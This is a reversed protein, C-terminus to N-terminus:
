WVVTKVKIKREEIKALKLAKLILFILRAVIGSIYSLIGGLIKVLLFFGFAFGISIEKQYPGIFEAIKKNLEQSIARSIEGKAEKGLKESVIDEQRFSQDRSQTSINKLDEEEVPSVGIVISELPTIFFSVIEPSIRLTQQNINLLPNFYYVLGIVIAIGTVIVPRGRKWIKGVALQDVRSRKERQILWYSLSLFCLLILMGSLYFFNFPFFAFFAIAGFFNAIALKYYRKLLFDALLLLAVLFIFILSLALFNSSTFNGPKFSFALIYWLGIWLGVCVIGLIADKLRLFKKREQLKEKDNQM